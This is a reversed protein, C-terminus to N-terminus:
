FDEDEDKRVLIKRLEEIDKDARKVIREAYRQAAKMENLTPEEEGTRNKPPRGRKAM